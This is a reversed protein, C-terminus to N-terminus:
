GPRYGPEGGAGQVLQGLDWCFGAKDDCVMGNGQNRLPMDGQGAADSNGCHVPMSNFSVRGLSCICDDVVV